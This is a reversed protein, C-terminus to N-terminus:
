ILATFLQMQKWSFKFVSVCYFATLFFPFICDFQTRHKTLVPGGIITCRPAVVNSGARFLHKSASLFRHLRSVVMTRQLM